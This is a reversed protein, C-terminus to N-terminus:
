PSKGNCRKSGQRMAHRHSNLFSGNGRPTDCNASRRKEKSREKGGGKQGSFLLAARFREKLTEGQEVRAKENFGRKPIIGGPKTLLM